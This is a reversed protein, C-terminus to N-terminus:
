GRGLARSLREGAGAPLAEAVGLKQRVATVVAGFESGFQTCRDCTRLHAEVAARDAEDLEADLYASLVELVEVCQMPARVSM